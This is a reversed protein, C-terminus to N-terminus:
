EAKKYDEKQKIGKEEIGYLIFVLLMPNDVYTESMTTVFLILLYWFSLLKNNNSLKRSFNFTGWLMITGYLVGYIAFWNIFTCTNMGNTYYYLEKALGNRGNGIIPSKFFAEIPKTIAYYRVSVSQVQGGSMYNAIKGFVTSQGNNLVKGFLYDQGFYLALLLAVTLFLVFKKMSNSKSRKFFLTLLILMMTIYGTTSYTTIITIIYVVIRKYNCKAEEKSLEILLAINIFTQFAGPEWFMGINRNYKQTDVYLFLNSYTTYTTVQNINYLVPFINYAIFGVLSIVCLWHMIESYQNCFSKFDTRAVYLLSVLYSFMVMGFTVINENKIIVTIFGSLIIIFIGLLTNEKIKKPPGIVIVAFSIAWLAITIFSSVIDNCVVFSNALFLIMFLVVSEIVYNKTKNM